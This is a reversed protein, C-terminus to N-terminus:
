LNGELQGVSLLTLEDEREAYPPGGIIGTMQDMAEPSRSGRKAREFRHPVVPVVGEAGHLHFCRVRGEVHQGIPPEEVLRERAAKPRPAAVVLRPACETEAVLQLVPHREDVGRWGKQGPM